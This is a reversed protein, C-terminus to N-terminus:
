QTFIQRRLEIKGDSTLRDFMISGGITMDDYTKILKSERLQNRLDVFYIKFHGKGYDYGDNQMTDTLEIETAYAVMSGDDSWIMSHFQADDPIKTIIKRMKPDNLSLEVIEEEHLDSNVIPSSVIGARHKGDWSTYISDVGESSYKPYEPNTILMYKGAYPSLTYSTGRAFTDVVFPVIAPTATKASYFTSYKVTLKEYGLLNHINDYVLLTYSDDPIDEPRTGEPIYQTIRDFSASWTTGAVVIPESMGGYKGADSIVIGNILKWDTPGEYGPGVIVITSPLSKGLVNGKLTFPSNSKIILTAPDFSIVSSSTRSRSYVLALTILALIILIIVYKKM